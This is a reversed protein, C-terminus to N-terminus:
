SRRWIADVSAPGTSGPSGRRRTGLTLRAPLVPAITNASPQLNRHVPLGVNGGIGLDHVASHAELTCADRDRDNEVIQSGALRGLPNPLLVAREFGLVNRGGDSVGRVQSAFSHNRDRYGLRLPHGRTELKVLVKRAIRLRQQDVCAEVDMRDVILSKAATRVRGDEINAQFFISDKNSQIEVEGVNSEIRWRAM